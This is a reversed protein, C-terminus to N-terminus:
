LPITVPLVGRPEIKGSILAAAAELSGERYGYTCVYAGVEPFQRLDYPNRVAVVILKRDLANLAKVVDTQLAQDTAQKWPEVPCTPMVIVSADAAAAMAQKMAEDREGTLELSEVNGWHTALASALRPVTAHMGVVLLKEGASLKLPIASSDNRVLTVGLEAIERQIALHEPTRLLRGLANPDAFRRKGLDYGRKMATIRAVSEDLRSEPIRGDKVARIIAERSERMTAHTHPILILDVGAEIAMVSAEPVSWNNAIGKMEMSDTVLVGGYGMEERLLGTIIKRSLTSPLDPDLAPFMIHTTMISSVGAAIAARFPKLEMAELRERPYPVSPLALHSDVATDGHGPFNKACAVVGADQFGRIAQAGFECVLDPSEGYSRTGIIPNDPNNNVDVSPAFNYNVGLAILEEACAQCAKYALDPHRTAGLTMASPMVTVGDQFRAVMGGEQDVNVLLPERSLAQLENITNVTVTLDDHRVNRGMLIIGGIEMDRVIERAKACVTTDDTPNDGEWGLMLMAGVKQEITM